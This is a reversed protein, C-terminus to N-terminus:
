PPLYKSEFYIFKNEVELNIFGNKVTLECKLKALLIVPKLVM